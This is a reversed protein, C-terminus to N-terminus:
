AGESPAKGGVTGTEGAKGALTTTSAKTPNPRATTDPMPATPGWGEPLNEANLFGLKISEEANAKDHVFTLLKAPDNEFRERVHAPLASFMSNAAAVTQMATQYDYGTVDEYQAQVDERLHDLVGTAQYRAMITNIDCEDKFEQKTRSPELNIQAVRLHPGYALRVTPYEFQTTPHPKHSHSKNPQNDM